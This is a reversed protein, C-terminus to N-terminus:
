NVNSRSASNGDCSYYYGSFFNQIDEKKLLRINDEQSNDSSMRKLKLIPDFNENTQSPLFPAKIQKRLLERWNYDKFWVHEKVEEPGNTGM